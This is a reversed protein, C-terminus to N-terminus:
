DCRRCCNLKAVQNCRRCRIKAMLFDIVIKINFTHFLINKFVLLQVVVGFVVMMMVFFTLVLMMVMMMIFIAFVMVMMVVVVFIALVFMMVMM